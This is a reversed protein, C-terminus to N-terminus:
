SGSSSPPPPQLVDLIQRVNWRLLDSYTTRGTGGGLPDLSQLPVDAAEAVARAARPPLAQQTFIADVNQSRARAVLRDIAHPSPDHGPQPAVVATLSFDYRLLFYRFFPQALMVSTTRVPALATQVHDDLASLTTAFSDANARYTDCGPADVACLTDTLAPLLARVALPDTWFHPDPSGSAHAHANTAAPASGHTAGDFSRRHVPPVLDLLEITRADPLDAAWGDLSEAGYILATSQRITRLDSPRLDYTHPSDGPNLLTMVDGRAGVIPHLIMAFPPVTTVYQVTSADSSSSSSDSACGM